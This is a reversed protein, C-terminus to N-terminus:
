RMVRRTEPSRRPTTAAPTAASLQLLSGVDDSAVLVGAVMEVDTDRSTTDCPSVPANWADTRFAWSTGSGSGTVNAAKPPGTTAKPPAIAPSLKPADAVWTTTPTGNELLARSTISLMAGGYMEVFAYSSLVTSVTAWVPSKQSPSLLVVVAGSSNGINGPSLRGPPVVIGIIVFKVDPFSTAILLWGSQGSLVAWPGQESWCNVRASVAGG